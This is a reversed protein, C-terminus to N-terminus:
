PKNEDLCGGKGQAWLYFFEVVEERRGRKEGEGEREKERERERVREIMERGRATRRETPLRTVTDIELANIRMRHQGGLGQAGM